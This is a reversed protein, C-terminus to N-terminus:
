TWVVFVVAAKRAMTSSWSERWRLVSSLTKTAGGDLVAKGQDVAQATTIYSSAMCAQGDGAADAYCVFPAAEVHQALTAQDKHKEPCNAVQILDVM